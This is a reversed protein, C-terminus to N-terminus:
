PPRPILLKCIFIGFIEDTVNKKIMKPYWFRPDADSDANAKFALDADTDANFGICFRFVIMAKNM